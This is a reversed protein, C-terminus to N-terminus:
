DRERQTPGPPVPTGWCHGQQRWPPKRRSGAPRLQAQAWRPAGWSFPLYRIKRNLGTPRSPRSQQGPLNQWPTLIHLRGDELAKMEAPHPDPLVPSNAKDRLSQAPQRQNDWVLSYCQRQLEVWHGSQAAARLHCRRHTSCPSRGAFCANWYRMGWHWQVLFRPLHYIKWKNKNWPHGNNCRHLHKSM